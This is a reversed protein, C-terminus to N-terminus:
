AFKNQYKILLLLTHLTKFKKYNNEKEKRKSGNNKPNSNKNGDKTFILDQQHIHSFIYLIIIKSVKSYKDHQILHNLEKNFIKKKKVKRINKNSNKRFMLSLKIIESM